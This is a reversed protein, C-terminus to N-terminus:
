GIPGVVSKGTLTCFQMVLDGVGSRVWRRWHCLYFDIRGLDAGQEYLRNVKEVM